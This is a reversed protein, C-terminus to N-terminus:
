YIETLRLGISEDYMEGVDSICCRGVIMLNREVEIGFISGM